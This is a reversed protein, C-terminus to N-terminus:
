ASGYPLSGLRQRGDFLLDFRRQALRRHQVAILGPDTSRALQRPCMHRAGGSQRVVGDMGLAAALRGVRNADQRAIRPHAHMVAPLGIAGVRLTAMRQAVDMMQAFQRKHLLLILLGPGLLEFPHQQRHLRRDRLRARLALRRQGDGLTV